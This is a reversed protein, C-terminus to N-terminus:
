QPSYKLKLAHKIFFMLMIHVSFPLIIFYVADQAFYLLNFLM